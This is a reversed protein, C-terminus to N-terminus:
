GDEDFGWGGQIALRVKMIADGLWNKGRWKKPNRIDRDTAKLGVGWICDTPSAEVILKEKTALLKEKLDPHQTFKAYNAKYVVDRSITHWKAEDFGKVMRGWWKQDAPNDSSMIQKLAYDDDFMKAKAAMMYQECCNYTQGNVVIKRKAWQSFFSGYFYIADETETYNNSRL